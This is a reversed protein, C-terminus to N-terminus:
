KPDVVRHTVTVMVPGGGEGSHEVAQKSKGYGRDLLAVAASVRASDNASHQAVDALAKLADGGYKKAAAEIEITKADKRGKPRGAGQRRGGRQNGKIPKSEKESM